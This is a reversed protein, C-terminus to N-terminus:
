KLNDIKTYQLQLFCISPDLNVTLQLELKKTFFYDIKIQKYKSVAQFVILIIM